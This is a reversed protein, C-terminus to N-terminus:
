VRCLHGSKYVRESVPLIGERGTASDAVGYMATQASNGAESAAEWVGGHVLAARWQTCASAALAKCSLRHMRTRARICSSASALINTTQLIHTNNQLLRISIREDSLAGRQIGRNYGRIKCVQVWMDGFVHAARRKGIIDSLNKDTPALNGV